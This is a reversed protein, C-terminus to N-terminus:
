RPMPRSGPTKLAAPARDGREARAQVLTAELAADSM